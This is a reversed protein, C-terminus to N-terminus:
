APSCPRAKPTTASSIRESASRVARLVRSIAAMTRCVRPCTSATTVWTCSPRSRAVSPTARPSRAAEADFSIRAVVWRVKAATSAVTASVTRSSACPPWTTCADVRTAFRM